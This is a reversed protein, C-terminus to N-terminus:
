PERWLIEVAPNIPTPTAVGTITIAVDREALGRFEAILDMYVRRARAMAVDMNGSNNLDAATRLEIPSEIERLLVAVAQIRQRSTQDIAGDDGFTITGLLGHRIGPAADRVPPIGASKRGAAFDNEARLISVLRSMVSREIQALQASDLQASGPEAPAPTLRIVPVSVYLTDPRPVPANAGAPGSANRSCGTLIVALAVTRAFFTCM